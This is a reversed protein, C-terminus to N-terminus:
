TEGETPCAPHAEACEEARVGDAPAVQQCLCGGPGRPRNPCLLFLLYLLLEGPIDTYRSLVCPLDALGAAPPAAPPLDELDATKSRLLFSPVSLHRQSGCSTNSFWVVEASSFAGVVCGLATSTLPAERPSAWTSPPAPASSPWRGVSAETESSRFNVM